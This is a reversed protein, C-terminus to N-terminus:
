GQILSSAPAVQIGSIESLYADTTEKDPTGLCMIHDVSVEFNGMKTSYIWPAWGLGVGQPGRMLALVLPSSVTFVGSEEDIEEIKCIIEEGSSMKLTKIESM